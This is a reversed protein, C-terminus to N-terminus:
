VVLEQVPGLRDPGNQSVEFKCAKQRLRTM